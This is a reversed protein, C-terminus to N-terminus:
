LGRAKWRELERRDRKTPRAGHEPIDNGAKRLMAAQSRRALSSDTEQYLAQAVSAPGRQNSLERVIVELHEGARTLEIRDGIQV